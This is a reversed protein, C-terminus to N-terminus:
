PRDADGAPPPNAAAVVAVGDPLSLDGVERELVTRLMAAQVQPAAATLEDVFVVSHGQEAARRAWAPPSFVVVGDTRVPLGAFDSAERISGIVVECPRGYAAAISEILRSKGGGPAGWLLVSESAQIAIALAQRTAAPLGM